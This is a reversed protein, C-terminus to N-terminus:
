KEFVAQITQHDFGRGQLFRSQKMKVKFDTPLESGFRKARQQKAQEIWDIGLEQEVQNLLPQFLIADIGRLQLEYRIKNIGQGKGIRYRIFSETFREDSQFGQALLRELLPEVSSCQKETLKSRLEQQSYERRALLRIAYSYCDKALNEASM